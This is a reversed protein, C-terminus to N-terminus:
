TGNGNPTPPPAHAEAAAEIAKQFESPSLDSRKLIEVLLRRDEREDQRYADLTSSLTESRIKATEKLDQSIEKLDRAFKTQQSGLLDINLRQQEPLQISLWYLIACLLLWSIGQTKVIDWADRITPPTPATMWRKGRPRDTTTQGQQITTDAM